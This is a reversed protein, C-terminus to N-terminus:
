SIWGIFLPMEYTGCGYFLVVRIGGQGWLPGIRYESSVILVGPVLPACWHFDTKPGDPFAAPTRKVIMKEEESKAAARAQANLAVDYEKKARATMESPYFIVGGLWTVFYLAGIVVLTKQSAHKM